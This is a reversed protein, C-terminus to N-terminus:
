KTTEMGIYEKIARHLKLAHYYLGDAHVFMIDYKIVNNHYFHKLRDLLKGKKFKENYDMTVIADIEILIRCSQLKQKQGGKVVEVDMVNYFNIVMKITYKFYDDVEKTGEWEIEKKIGDSGAKAKNSGETFDYKHDIIWDRMMKLLGPIDVIGQYKIVGIRQELPNPLAM